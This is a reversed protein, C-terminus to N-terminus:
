SRLLQFTLRRTTTTLGELNQFGPLDAVHALAPNDTVPRQKWYNYGGPYPM